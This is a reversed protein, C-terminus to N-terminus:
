EGGEGGQRLHWVGRGLVAQSCDRSCFVRLPKGEKLMKLMESLPRRCDKSCAPNSCFLTVWVRPRLPHPPHLTKTRPPM